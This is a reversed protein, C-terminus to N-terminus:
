LKWGYEKSRTSYKYTKNVYDDIDLLQLKSNYYAKNEIILPVVQEYLQSPTIFGYKKKYTDIVQDIYKEGINKKNNIPTKKETNKFTYVFDGTLTNKRNIGQTGSSVAQDVWKVHVLEFGNSQCSDMLIKWFKLHRNHFTMSLYKNRKLVRSMESFTDELREQYDSEKKQRYPDYIIENEYKVRNRLWSNWFSSLALYAISEGYPPDTFIYDISDSKVASMKQSTLNYIEYNSQTVLNEIDKKGQIYKTLRQSLSILVNKEAHVEPCWFKSIQWGSKGVVRDIDGPIMKSFNPLGSTFIFRLSNKIKKDTIQNVENLFWSAILLNRKSFLEDITNKKNRRVYKMIEDKPYFFEKEYKRLLKEAKKYTSIDTKNANRITSKGDKRFKVKILEDGKWIANELTYKKTGMVALQLSYIEEPIDAIIKKFTKELKNLDITKLTEEAIMCAMPNLDYGISHRNLKNAEILAGGSGMFPDLVTDNKKTFHRVYTSVLDHPKRGWYKHILYHKPHSSTTVEVKDLDSIIKNKKVVTKM